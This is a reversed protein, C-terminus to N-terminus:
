SDINTLYKKQENCHNISILMLFFTCIQETLLRELEGMWGVFVGAVVNTDGSSFHIIKRHLLIM